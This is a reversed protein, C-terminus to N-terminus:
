MKEVYERDRIDIHFEAYDAISNLVYVCLLTTYLTPRETLETTLSIQSEAEKRRCNEKEHFALDRANSSFLFARNHFAQKLIAKKQTFYSKNKNYM